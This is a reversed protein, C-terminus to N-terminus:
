RALEPRLLQSWAFYKIFIRYDFYVLYTNFTLQLTNSFTLWDTTKISMHSGVVFWSFLFYGQDSCNYCFCIICILIRTITTDSVIKVVEQMEIGWLQKFIWVNTAWPQVCLFLNDDYRVLSCRKYCQSWDQVFSDLRRVKARPCKFLVRVVQVHHRSRFGIASFRFSCNAFSVFFLTVFIYVTNFSVGPRRWAQDFRHRFSLWLLLSKLFCNRLCALLWM